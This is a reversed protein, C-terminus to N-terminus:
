GTWKSVHLNYDPSFRPLTQATVFAAAGSGSKARQQTCDTVWVGYGEGGDSSGGRSSVPPWHSTKSALPRSLKLKMLPLTDEKNAGSTTIFQQTPQLDFRWPCSSTHLDVVFLRLLPKDATRKWFGMQSWLGTKETETFVWLWGVLGHSCDHKSNSGHKNHLMQPNLQSPSPDSLLWSGQHKEQADNKNLTNIKVQSFPSLILSFFNLYFFFFCM